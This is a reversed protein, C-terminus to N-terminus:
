IFTQDAHNKRAVRQGLFRLVVHTINDPQRSASSRSTPPGFMSRHSRRPISCNSQPLMPDVFFRQMNHPRGGSPAATFWRLFLRYSPKMFPFYLWRILCYGMLEIRGSKSYTSSARGTTFGDAPAFVVNGWASQEQGSIVEPLM